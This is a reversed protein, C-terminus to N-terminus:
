ATAYILADAMSGTGCVLNRRGSFIPHSFHAKSDATLYELWGSTDVFVSDSAGPTTVTIM